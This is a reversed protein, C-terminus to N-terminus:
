AAVRVQGSFHAAVVAETQLALTHLNKVLLQRPRAALERWAVAHGDASRLEGDLRPSCRTAAIAELARATRQAAQWDRPTCLLDLDSRSGICAEGTLVQLGASGIVRPQATRIVADALLAHTLPLWAVPLAGACQELLPPACHRVIANADVLFPLRHKGEGPPLALGVALFGAPVGAPQRTVILPHGRAIWSALHRLASLAEIPGATCGSQDAPRASACAGSAVWVLDHRQVGAPSGAENM